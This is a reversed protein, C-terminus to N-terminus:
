FVICLNPHGLCPTVCFNCRPYSDPFPISSVLDLYPPASLCIFIDTLFIFKIRQAMLFGKLSSFFLTLYHSKLLSVRPSMCFLILVFLHITPFTFNSVSSRSPSQKFLGLCFHSSCSNFCGYQSSFFKFFFFFQFFLDM